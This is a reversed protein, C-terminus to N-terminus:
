LQSMTLPKNARLKKAFINNIYYEGDKVEFRIKSTDKKPNYSFIDVGSRRSTGPITQAQKLSIENLKIPIIRSWTVIKV